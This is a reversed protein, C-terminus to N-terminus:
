LPALFQSKIYDAVNVLEKTQEFVKLQRDAGTGGELIKNVLSL